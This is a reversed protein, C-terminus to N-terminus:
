IEKLTSQILIRESNSYVQSIYNSTDSNINLKIKEKFINLLCNAIAEINRIPVILGDTGDRVISGSNYTTIIPLRWNLAEYTVMASGECISPIVFVDAWAYLEAMQSRPVRGMFECLDQYETVREPRIELSGAVKCAFPIKGQLKRLAELLYPIGKRLGVSGAFLIRLGDKRQQPTQRKPNIQNLKGDKQRGLTIVSIKDARVGRAVLSDKVFSSGCIIQDALDQERQEREMLELDADSVTFPSLSWEPWFKEEKLLLQHVMSREALTQDLVCRIGRAKAYEFLELSAGNFGYIVDIDTIDTNIIKKCFEKYGWIKISSRNALSSNGMAKTWQYALKPFHIIRAKELAPDYRDLGKKLINPLHNYIQPLKLLQTVENNGSYFDTYFRELIGWQNFLIPQQYHRRAGLQAVLVRSNSM